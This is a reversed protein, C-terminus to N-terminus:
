KLAVRVKMPVYREFVMIHFVAQNHEETVEILDMQELKRLRSRLWKKQSYNLPKKAIVVTAGTLHSSRTEGTIPAANKNYKAIENQRKITRTASNIQLKSRFHKQFSKGLDALFKATWPRVVCYQEALRRDIKIGKTRPIDILHGQEKLQELETSDAIRTLGSRDAELNQKLLSEPSGKLISDARGETSLLYVSVLLAVSLLKM